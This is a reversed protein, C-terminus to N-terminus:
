CSGMFFFIPVTEFAIVFAFLGNLWVGLRATFHRVSRDDPPTAHHRTQGIRYALWTFGVAVALMAASLTLIAWAVATIGLLTPERMTTLCGFEGILYAGLLHLTWAVAGGLLTPWALAHHATTHDADPM